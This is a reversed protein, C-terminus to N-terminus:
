SHKEVLHGEVGIGSITLTRLHCLDVEMIYPLNGVVEWRDNIEHSESSFSQAVELEGVVKEPFGILCSGEVPLFEAHPLFMRVEPIAEPPAVWFASDGLDVAELDEAWIVEVRKQSRAEVSIQSAISRVWGQPLLKRLAAARGYHLNSTTPDPIGMRSRAVAVSFGDSLFSESIEFHRLFAASTGECAELLAKPNERTLSRVISSRGWRTAILLRPDGEERQLQTQSTRLALTQLIQKEREREVTWTILNAELEPQIHLAPLEALSGDERPLPDPRYLDGENLIAEVKGTVTSVVQIGEGLQFFEDSLYRAVQLAVAFDCAESWISSLRIALNDSLWEATRSEERARRFFEQLEPTERIVTRARLLWNPPPDVTSLVKPALRRALGSEVERIPALERTPM